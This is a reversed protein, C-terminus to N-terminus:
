PGAHARMKCLDTMVKWRKHRKGKRTEGEKQGQGRGSGRTAHSRYAIATSTYAEEAATKQAMATCREGLCITFRPRVMAM